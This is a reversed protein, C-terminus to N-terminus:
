IHDASSFQATPFLGHFGDGTEHNQRKGHAEVRHQCAIFHAGATPAAKEHFAKAPIFDHTTSIVTPGHGHWAKCRRFSFWIQWKEGFAAQLNVFFSAWGAM